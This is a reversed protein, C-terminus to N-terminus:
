ARSMLNESIRKGLERCSSLMKQDPLYRALLPPEDVQMEFKNKMIELILRPAEGSWGYSGFAAGMKGKLSLGKVAVEEFLNKFDLPMEHHYTPAGVLIADFASLEEPDVHFTLEVKINGNIQAGEAVAKAMRETNGTRSYYLVLIQKM